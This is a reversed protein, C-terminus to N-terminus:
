LYVILIKVLNYTHLNYNAWNVFFALLNYSLHPMEM